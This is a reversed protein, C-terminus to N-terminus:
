VWTVGDARWLRTADIPVRRGEPLEAMATPAPTARRKTAPPGHALGLAALLRRVRERGIRPAGAKLVHSLRRYGATPHTLAVQEVSPQREQECRQRQQHRLAARRYDRLRWSPLGVV